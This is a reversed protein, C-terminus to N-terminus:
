QPQSALKIQITVPTFGPPEQFILLSPNKFDGEGLLPSPFPKIILGSEGLPLFAESGKLIIIKKSREERSGGKKLKFNGRLRKKDEPSLTTPKFFRGDERIKLFQGPNLIIRRSPEQQNWVEVTGSLCYLGLIEGESGQIIEIVFETGRVGAVTSLAKIQYEPEKASSFWGSVWARVRGTVLRFISKRSVGPEYELEEVQFKSKEGLTIVSHDRFWIRARADAETTILDGPFLEMGLQASIKEQGREVWVVGELETFKGAWNQATASLSFFLVLGLGLAINKRKM